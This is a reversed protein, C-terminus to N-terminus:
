AWISCYSALLLSSIYQEGAQTTILKVSDLEEMSSSLNLGSKGDKMLASVLDLSLALARVFLFILHEHIAM